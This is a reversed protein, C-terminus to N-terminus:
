DLFKPPMKKKRRSKERKITDVNEDHKKKAEYNYRVERMVVEPASLPLEIVSGAMPGDPSRQELALRNIHTTIHDRANELIDSKYWSALGYKGKARRLFTTPDELILEANKMLFLGCDNSGNAQMPLTPFDITFAPVEIGAEEGLRELFTSFIRASTNTSRKWKDGGLSELVYTVPKQVDLYAVLLYFHGHSVEPLLVLSAGGTKWLMRLESMDRLGMEQLRDPPADAKAWYQLKQAFETTLLLTDRPQDPYLMQRCDELELDKQRLLFNVLNDSIAHHKALYGYDRKTIVFGGFQGPDSPLVCIQTEGDDPAIRRQKKPPSESISIHRENVSQKTKSEKAQDKIIDLVYKSFGESNKLDEFKKIKQLKALSDLCTAYVTKDPEPAGESLSLLLAEM